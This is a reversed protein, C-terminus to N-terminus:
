VPAGFFAVPSGQARRQLGTSDPFSFDQRPEERRSRVQRDRSLRCPPTTEGDATPMAVPAALAASSISISMGVGASTGSPGGGAARLLDGGAGSPVFGERAGFFGFPLARWCLPTTNLSAMGARTLFNKPRSAGCGGGCGALLRGDAAFALLSRSSSSAARATRRWCSSSSAIVVRLLLALM